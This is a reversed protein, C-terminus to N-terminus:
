CHSPNRNTSQVSPVLRFLRASISPEGIGLVLWSGFTMKEAVAKKAGSGNAKVESSAGRGHANEKKWTGNKGVSSRTQKENM